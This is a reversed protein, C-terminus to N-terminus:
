QKGKMKTTDYSLSDPNFKIDHGPKFIIGSKSSSMMEVKKPRPYSTRTKKKTSDPFSYKKDTLIVVKSSPLMLKQLSDNKPGLTDGQSTNIIGESCSTQLSSRENTPITDFKGVRHLLFTTILILFSFLTVGKILKSQRM